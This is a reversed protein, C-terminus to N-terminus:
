SELSETDSVLEQPSGKPRPNTKPLFDYQVTMTM